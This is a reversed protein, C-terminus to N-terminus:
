SERAPSSEALSVLTTELQDAQRESDGADAEPPYLTALLTPLWRRAPGRPTERRASDVTLLNGVAGRRVPSACKRPMRSELLDNMVAPRRLPRRPNGRSLGRLGGTDNAGRKQYIDLLADAKQM